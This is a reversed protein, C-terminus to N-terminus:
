RGSSSTKPLSSRTPPEGVRTDQTPPRADLRWTTLNDPLQVTISAQGDEDTRLSANWYATDPFFRRTEGPTGGGGGGGKGGPQRVDAGGVQNLRDLSVIQTAGTMVGIGRRNYFAESPAPPTMPWPSSPWTWWALSVPPWRSAPATPPSPTASAIAPRVQEASPEISIDIKKEDNAVELEVYGLKFSPVPNDDTPPKFLAVSVFINPVHASTIPLELVTSNTPFDALRHEIIRGREVTVLGRSQDFPAPVLIRATEGPAYRRKDAVLEVRDDTDV